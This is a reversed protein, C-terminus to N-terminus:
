LIYTYRVRKSKLLYLTWVLAVLSSSLMSPLMEALPVTKGFIVLPLVVNMVIAALPGILWLAAISHNVVEARRSRKLRIGTAISAFSTVAFTWWCAVKFSIWRGVDLLEPRLEEAQLFESHLRGAGLIPGLFILSVVLFALWGGIGTPGLEVSVSPAISDVLKAKPTTQRQVLSKIFSFSAIALGPLAFMLGPLAFLLAFPWDWEWVDKAGFFAGVTVPFFLRLAFAAIVAGIAWGKGWHYELGLFGAYVQAVGFAMLGCFALIGFVIKM